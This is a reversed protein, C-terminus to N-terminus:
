MLFLFCSQILVVECISHKHTYKHTYETKVRSVLRINAICTKISIFDFKMAHQM